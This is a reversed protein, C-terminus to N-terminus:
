VSRGEEMAIGTCVVRVWREKGSGGVQWMEDGKGTSVDDGEGGKRCKEDRIVRGVGM